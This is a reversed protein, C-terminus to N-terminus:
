RAPPAATRSLVVVTYGGVSRVEYGAHARRLSEILDSARARPERTHFLYAVQAASEFTARWPAYRDDNPSLPVVVPDEAFLYALKYSLWYQATAAPVKRERLFDRLARDEDLLGDFPAPRLAAPVGAWLAAAITASAIWPSLALALRRAGLWAAAPALAFPAFWLLGVLYRSSWLDEPMASPLFAALSSAAAAAGLLGLRRLPWGASSRLGLLAGSALGCLLSAAGAVKLATGFLGTGGEDPYLGAGPVHWKSGLTEPLCVRVLLSLNHQWRGASARLVGADAGQRLLAVGLAGALAGAVVALVRARSRGACALGFLLLAPVLQLAYLDLYVSLAVLLGGAALWALQRQAPAPPERSSAAATGARDFLWAAALLAVGTLNRTGWTIPATLPSVGIVLPLAAVAAPWGPLHRRLLSWALWSIAVSELIPGLVVSLPRVGLFLTALAAILPELSSQYPRGWLLASWEGRLM